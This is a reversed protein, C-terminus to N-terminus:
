SPGLIGRVFAAADAVARDAEPLRGVLLQWGHPPGPWVQLTV